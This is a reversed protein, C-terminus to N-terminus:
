ALLVGLIKTVQITHAIQGHYLPKFTCYVIYAMFYSFKDQQTHHVAHFRAKKYTMAISSAINYRQQLLLHLPMDTFIADRIKNNAM